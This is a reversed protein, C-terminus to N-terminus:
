IWSWQMAFADDGYQNRDTVIDAPTSKVTVFMFHMQKLTAAGYGSSLMLVSWFLLGARTHLFAKM